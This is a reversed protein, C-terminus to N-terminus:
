PAVPASQAELIHIEVRRNQARHDANTNSVRPRSLGYGRAVVRAADIGHEILYQRVADARRQSLQLNFDDGGRDDTHGQVEVRPIEAHAALIGVLSDCLDYSRAGVIRDSNSAFNITGLLRIVGEGLTVLSPRDPCGDGDEYNNFTEPRDPCRDVSNPLGDHDLDAEPCGPRAPDPRAGRPEGRCLDDHDPVGDGDNDPDPCGPMEPNPSMGAPTAPCRDQPDYVGDGDADGQPCGPRAPDPHTGAPVTPCHDDPDLVTDGDHDAPGRPVEIVSVTPPPPAVPPVRLTLALGAAVYRADDNFREATGDARVDPQVIQGYRVYPGLGVAQTIEFEFGLGVDFAFRRALGSFGVGANADLYLRGTSGVRPELRLGGTPTFVWGTTGNGSPFVWNSVSVQLSLPEFLRLALRASGEFGGLRYGKANGDYREADTNRQYDSVMVCAGAEVHFALRDVFRDQADARSPAAAVVVVAAASWGFRARMSSVKRM